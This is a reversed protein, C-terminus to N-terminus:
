SLKSHLILCLFMVFPLTINSLPLCCHSHLGRLCMVHVCQTKVPSLFFGNEQAWLYLHNLSDQLWCKVTVIIWSGYYITVDVVCLSVALSPGVANIMGDITVASLNCNFSFSTASLRECINCLYCM